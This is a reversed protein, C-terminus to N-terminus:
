RRCVSFRLSIIESPSLTLTLEPLRNLNCFCVGASSCWWQLLCLFIPFSLCFFGLNKTPIQDKNLQHNRQLQRTHRLSVALIQGSQKLVLHRMRWATILGQSLSIPSQNENDRCYSVLGGEGRKEERSEHRFSHPRAINKGRGHGWSAIRHATFM